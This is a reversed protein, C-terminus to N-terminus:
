SFESLERPNFFQAGWNANPRQTNSPPLARTANWILNPAYVALAVLALAAGAPSLLARRADRSLVM